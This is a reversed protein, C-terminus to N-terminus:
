RGAPGSVEPRSARVVTDLAEAQGDETEVPRVAQEAVEVELDGVEDVLDDVTYLIDPDDPGGHGHELNDRDHGVILLVGGPAVAAAARALVVRRPKPPIHLYLVAVLDYAEEDPHYEIVDAPVWDVDVGHEEALRRAKDLGVDSFDVATVEWGREALWVANRGEGTAIDLARGPPLEAVEAALFRNPEATWLLERGGYRQNWGERDM